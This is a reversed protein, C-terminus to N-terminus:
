PAVERAIQMFQEAYARVRSPQAQRAQAELALDPGPAATSWLAALKSALDAADHPDFYEACPVNQERHAPLDSALVRKGVARAEALSLGFGEFLSPNLVCVAQRILAFVDARPVSGLLVIESRIKWRALTQLIESFYAANRSDIPAGTCVITVREGREKLRRVAEFAVRHNKHQWFQNPLYIFKAPLGYVQLIEEPARTYIEEPVVSVPPLIRAKDAYQPAFTQLDALVSKTSVLLRSAREATKFYEGDRYRIESADFFEPFHRHQFDTILALTPLSTWRELVGCVLAQVGNAKLVRDPLLDSKLLKHRAHNLAWSPSGRELLPYAITGDTISKFEEPVPTGHLAEVAYLRLENPYTIRLAHILDGFLTVGGQWSAGSGRMVEFGIGFNM